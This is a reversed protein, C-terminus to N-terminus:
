QTINRLFHLIKKKNQKKITAKNSLFCISLIGIGVCILQGIFCILTVLKEPWFLFSQELLVTNLMNNVLKEYISNPLYKPLYAIVFQLALSIIAICTTRNLLFSKIKTIM